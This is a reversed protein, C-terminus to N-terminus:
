KAERSGSLVVPNIPCRRIPVNCLSVANSNLAKLAAASVHSRHRPLSGARRAVVSGIVRGAEPSAGRAGGTKTRPQASRGSGWSTLHCIVFVVGLRAPSMIDRINM